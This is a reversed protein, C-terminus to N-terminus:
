LYALKFFNFNNVTTSSRVEDPLNNWLQPGAILILMVVDTQTQPIVLLGANSSRLSRPPVYKVLMDSIGDPVLGSLSKFVLLKCSLASILTTFIYSLM